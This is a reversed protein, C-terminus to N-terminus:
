DVDFVVVPLEVGDIVPTARVTEIYGTSDSASQPICFLVELVARGEFTTNNVKPVWRVDGQNLVGLGAANLPERFSPLGLDAQLKMLTTRATANGVTGPTFAQFTAVFKRMGVASRVIEQGPNRDAAFDWTSADVGIGLLDGVRITVYRSPFPSPGDQDSFIIGADGLGSSQDVLTFLARELTAQDIM